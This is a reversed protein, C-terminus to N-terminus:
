QRDVEISSNILSINKRYDTTNKTGTNGTSKTYGRIQNGAVM